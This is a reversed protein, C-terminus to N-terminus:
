INLLNSIEGMERLKEVEFGFAFVDLTGLYRLNNGLTLMQSHEEEVLPCISGLVLGSEEGCSSLLDLPLGKGHNAKAM